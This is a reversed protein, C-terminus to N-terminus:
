GLLEGDVHHIAMDVMAAAPSRGYLDLTELATKLLKRAETLKERREEEDGAPSNAFCQDPM